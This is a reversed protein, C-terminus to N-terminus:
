GGLHDALFADVAAYYASPQERRICHASGPIRVLSVHSNGIETIGREVPETICVEALDDGSVVLTPVTVQAFLDPWRTTPKVDGHVLYDLDMRQEAVGTVLLEDEPWDPHADRRVKLLEDEDRADLSARIGALLEQGRSPDRQPDDPWLPAPDELVLVRVLEPRRVAAALAVAGGLSHGVLVAPEDLQELIGTVDAVMVEGPHAELQEPTFRPSTGHGRQDVALISYAPGWHREAGPWGAGSDTLGHLWVMTTAEGAPRGTRRVTLDTRIDHTM